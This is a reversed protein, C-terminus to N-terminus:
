GPMEKLLVPMVMERLKKLAKNQRLLLAEADPAGLAKAMLSNERVTRYENLGENLSAKQASEFEAMIEEAVQRRSCGTKQAIRTVWDSMLCMIAYVSFQDWAVTTGDDSSPPLGMMAGVLDKEDM